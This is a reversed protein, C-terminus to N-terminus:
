RKTGHKTALSKGVAPVFRVPTRSKQAKGPDSQSPLGLHTAARSAPLRPTGYLKSHHSMVNACIETTCHREPSTQSLLTLKPHVATVPPIVIVCRQHSLM